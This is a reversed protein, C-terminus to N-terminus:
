RACRFGVGASREDPKLRIRLASKPDDSGRFGGCALGEASLEWINGVLDHHGFPGAGEPRGGIGEPPTGPKHGFAARKASPTGDGWPYPALGTARAWELERPLRKRAWRAYATAEALTVGVVPQTPDEWGPRFMWPPCPAGTAQHFALWEANTVPHTDLWFGGVRRRVGGPLLARGGRVRLMPGGRPRRGFLRGLWAFASAM